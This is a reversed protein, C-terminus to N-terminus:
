NSEDGVQSSKKSLQELKSRLAKQRRKQHARILPVALIYCITAATIGPIVSGVMYPFFVEQYFAQLGHWDARAPTFIAKLNHTIDAFADNFRCGIGCFDAPVHKGFGFTAANFPIGLMWHGTGLSSIAIPIYTMPNGFFTAMLSALINGRMLRAILAALIFHMAFFPTFSIFVGAWIGRSIKEPTDPLRRVRHKVYEFARGWGGRPYIFDFVIQWIPRRDRRKFVM